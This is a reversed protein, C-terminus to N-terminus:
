IQSKKQRSQESFIHSILKKRDKESTDIFRIRLLFRQTVTDFAISDLVEGTLEFHEQNLELKVTIRTGARMRTPLFCRLGGASINQTLGDFYGDGSNGLRVDRLIPLRYYQRRQTQQIDEILEVVLIDADGSRSSEVIKGSMELIGAAGKNAVLKIADNSQLTKHANCVTAQIILRDNDMLAEFATELVLPSGEEGDLYIELRDGATLLSKLKNKM